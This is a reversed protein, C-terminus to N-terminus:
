YIAFFREPTLVLMIGEAFLDEITVHMDPATTLMTTFMRRAGELGQPWGPTLATHLVFYPSFGHDIFSLDRKNFAEAMRRITAKNEEPSM